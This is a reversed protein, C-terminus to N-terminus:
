CLCLDQQSNNFIAAKTAKGQSPLHRRLRRILLRWVCLLEGVFGLKDCHAFLADNSTNACACCLMTMGVQLTPPSSLWCLRSSHIEGLAVSRSARYTRVLGKCTYLLMQKSLNQAYMGGFVSRANESIWEVRSQPRPRSSLFLHTHYVGFMTM